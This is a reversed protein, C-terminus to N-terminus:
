GTKAKRSDAVVKNRLFTIQPAIKKLDKMVQRHKSNNEEVLDLLQDIRKDERSEVSMEAQDQMGAAEPYRDIIDAQVGAQRKLETDSEDSRSTTIFAADDKTHHFIHELIWWKPYYEELSSALAAQANLVEIQQLEFISSPVTMDIDWKVSDPDINLAALHIRVIKKVGAKFERQIRLETRAFRVDEQAVQGKNPEGEMLYNRPIKIASLLKSQFYEIDEMSQSELGSVMDIRTSEKGGRTPVFFDETPSLPNYRFNLQGTSPDMLKRKKYARQVKKVLAMAQKTPLDGTDIYFAYRAWSRTLKFVLASDEMMVLRKWIWRASDLVSTGYQATMRKSRIRWHTVEWPYFFVIQDNKSEKRLKEIDSMDELRFSFEGTIDQVFGLLAGQRNVIRRMTPAPLWKLGIVGDDTIVNEAYLNGYKCMTRVAAWIDDEIRLRRHLLDNIIDRVVKDRSTAWITKNHISDLITADDAYIDLAASLTPYDDMNEIDIYSATLNPDVTLQDSLAQVREDEGFMLELEGGQSTGRATDLVKKETEGGWWKKVTDLWSM